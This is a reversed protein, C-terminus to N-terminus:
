SKYGKFEETAIETAVKEITGKMVENLNISSMLDGSKEELEEKTMKSNFFGQENVELAIEKYIDTYTKDNEKKYDDLFDYVYEENVFAKNSGDAPDSFYYIMKALIEIDCENLAKFYIEELNKGNLKKIIDIIRKTTLRIEIENKATKLIM